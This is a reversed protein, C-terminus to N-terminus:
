GIQLALKVCLHSLLKTYVAEPTYLWGWMDKGLQPKSKEKFFLSNQKPWLNTPNYFGPAKFVFSRSSLNRLLFPRRRLLQRTLKRVHFSPALRKGRRLARKSCSFHRGSPGQSGSSWRESRGSALWPSAQPICHTDLGTFDRPFDFPPELLCTLMNQGQLDVRSFPWLREFLRSWPPHTLKSALDQYKFYCWLLGPKQLGLIETTNKNTSVISYFGDSPIKTAWLPIEKM